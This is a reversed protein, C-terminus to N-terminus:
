IPVSDSKPLDDSSGEPDLKDLRDRNRRAARDTARTAEMLRRYEARTAQLEQRTKHLEETTRDLQERLAVQERNAENRIDHLSARAKDLSSMAEAATADAKATARTLQDKHDAAAKEMERKLDDVQKSVSGAYYADGAKKAELEAAATQKKIELEAAAMEKRATLETAAREKLWKIYVTTAREAAFAVVGIVAVGVASVVGINVSAMFSWGTTATAVAWAAMRAATAAFPVIRPNVASGGPGPAAISLVVVVGWAITNALSEFLGVQALLIM